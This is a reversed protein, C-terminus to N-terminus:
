TAAYTAERRQNVIQQEKYTDEQRRGAIAAANLKSKDQIGSSEIAEQAEDFQKNALLNAINLKEPQEAVNRQALMGTRIANADINRGYKTLADPGFSKDAVAQNLQDTSTLGRIRNMVNATNTDTQRQDLEDATQSLGTLAKQLGVNSSQILKIGPASAQAIQRWNIEAM